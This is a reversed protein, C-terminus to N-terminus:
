QNFVVRWWEKKIRFDAHLGEEDLDRDAWVILYGFPAIVADTPFRWHKKFDQDDSLFLGELSILEDTNNYLEIWDGYGGAPDPIGGISDNSAM